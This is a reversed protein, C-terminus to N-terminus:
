VLDQPNLGSRNAEESESSESAAGRAMMVGLKIPPKDHDLGKRGQDPARRQLQAVVYEDTMAALPNGLEIVRQEMVM